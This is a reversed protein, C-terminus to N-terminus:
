MEPARTATVPPRGIKHGGTSEQQCGASPAAGGGEAVFALRRLTEANRLQIARRRLASPVLRGPGSSADEGLTVTTVGEEDPDIRLDVYAEGAPWGRAKLVIRYPPECAVVETVDNLLAPWIGVSHHLRSGPAPWTSDVNRMRAAGVVWVPYLWGDSIVEFIRESTAAVERTVANSAARELHEGLSEARTSSLTMCLPTGSIV